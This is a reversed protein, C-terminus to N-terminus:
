SLAVLVLTAGFNERCSEPLFVFSSLLEWIGARVLGSDFQCFLDAGEYGSGVLGLRCAAFL